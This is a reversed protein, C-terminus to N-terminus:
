MGHLYDYLEIVRGDEPNSCLNLTESLGSCEFGGGIGFDVMGASVFEVDDFGHRRLAQKFVRAIEKHVLFDPFVLPVKKDGRVKAIIYKTDAAETFGVASAARLTAQVVSLVDNAVAQHWAASM